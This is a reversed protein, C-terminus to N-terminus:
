AIVIPPRSSGMPLGGFRIPRSNRSASVPSGIVKRSHNRVASGITSAMNTASITITTAIFRGSTLCTFPTRSYTSSCRLLSPGIDRPSFFTRHTSQMASMPQNPGPM